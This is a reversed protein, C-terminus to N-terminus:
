WMSDAAVEHYRVQNMGEVAFFVLEGFKQSHFPRYCAAAVVSGNPQMLAVSRHNRNMVVRAIYPKPMAPLQNSICNKINVLRCAFHQLCNEVPLAVLDAM